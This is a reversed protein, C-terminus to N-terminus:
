TLLLIQTPSLDVNIWGQKVKPGCGIHLRLHQQGSLNRAQRVGQRHKRLIKIENLVHRLSSRLGYTTQGKIFQRIM